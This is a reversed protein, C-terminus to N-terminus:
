EESIGAERGIIEGIYGPIAVGMGKSANGGAPQLTYVTGDPSVTAFQGEAVVKGGDAMKGYGDYTYVTYIVSDMQAAHAERYAEIRALVATAEDRKTAKKAYAKEKTQFLRQRRTLEDALTVDKVKEFKTFDFKVVQPNEALIKEMVATQVPDQESACSVAAFFAVAIAAIIMIKKM